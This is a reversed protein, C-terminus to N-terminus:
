YLMPQQRIMMIWQELSKKTLFMNPKINELPKGGHRYYDDLFHELTASYDVVYKRKLRDYTNSFAGGLLFALGLKLAAKGKQGLTVTSKKNVM